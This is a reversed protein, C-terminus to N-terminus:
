SGALPSFCPLLRLPSFGTFRQASTLSRITATSTQSPWLLTSQGLENLFLILQGCELFNLTSARASWHVSLSWEWLHCVQGLQMRKPSNGFTSLM